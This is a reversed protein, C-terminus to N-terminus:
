ILYDMTLYSLWLLLTNVLRLVLIGRFLRHDACLEKMEQSISRIYSDTVTSSLEVVLVPPPLKAGGRVRDMMLGNRLVDVLTVDKPPDSIGLRAWIATALPTTDDSLPIRMGKNGATALAVAHRKGSGRRGTVIVYKGVSHSVENM